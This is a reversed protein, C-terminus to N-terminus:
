AEDADLLDEPAQLEPRNWLITRVRELLGLYGDFEAALRKYTVGSDPDFLRATEAARQYANRGEAKYYDVPQQFKVLIGGVRSIMTKPSAWRGHRLLAPFFSAMFLVFDGIYRDVELRREPGEKKGCLPLMDQLDELREGPAGELRYIRDTHVFDCLVDNTLHSAVRPDYLERREKFAQDVAGRFLRRLAHDEPIPHSM